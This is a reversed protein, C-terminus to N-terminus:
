PEASDGELVHGASRGGGGPDTAPDSRGVAADEGLGRGSGAVPSFRFAGGTLVHRLTVVRTVTRRRRVQRPSFEQRAPPALLPRLAVEMRCLLTGGEVVQQQLAQFDDIHGVAHRGHRSAFSGDPVQGQLTSAAPPFVLTPVPRNTLPCKLFIAQTLFRSAVSIRM